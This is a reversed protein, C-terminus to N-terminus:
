LKGNYILLHLQSDVGHMLVDLLPGVGLYLEVLVVEDGILPYLIAALKLLSCGRDRLVLVQNVLQGM